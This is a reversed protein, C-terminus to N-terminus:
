QTIKPGEQLAKRTTDTCAQYVSWKRTKKQEMYWKKIKKTNVNSITVEMDAKRNNYTEMDQYKKNWQSEGGFLYDLGKQDTFGPWHSIYFDDGELSVHGKADITDPMWWYVTVDGYEDTVDMSAGGDKELGLPDIWRIPNNTVYSYLNMSDVYGLPDRQLFRGLEPDYARNRYHYIETEKDWRRGTFMYPNNIASTSIVQNSSNRIEPAGYPDYRYQEVTAGNTNSVFRVSGLGDYHYYYTSTGRDMTLVAAILSCPRIHKSIVSSSSLNVALTKKSEDSFKSFSERRSFNYQNNITSRYM